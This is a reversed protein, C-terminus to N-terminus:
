DRCIKLNVLKIKTKDLSLIKFSGVGNITITENIIPFSGYKALILGAVTEYEDSTPLSLNYKDNIYDIELRGSFIYECDSIQKETATDVDYEDEIEGTIEEIIDEITVMGSTGGFEDVVLAISKNEKIFFSLLEHASMAETVIHINRMMAKISKPNKFLDLSHVYGVINDITDKFILIKSFGTKIFLQKLSEIDENIEICEIETRPVICERLKINSFDLANQFIKLENEIEDEDSDESSHTNILDDLDIKGFATEPNNKKIHINFLTKLFNNSLSVSIITLPYFLIYFFYVPIAFVKLAMNPNIRFITKPLFEATVLIILTSILTQIILIVVESSIFYAFVPELVIAMIIGYIVLAINNGILMTAIYASPRNTFFSIIRSSTTRQKKDLEIKLKNATVFAIEMGSFFASLILSSLIVIFYIM